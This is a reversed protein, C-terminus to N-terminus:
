AWEPIPGGNFGQSILTSAIGFVEAVFVVVFVILSLIFIIISAYLLRGQAVSMSHRRYLLIIISVLGLILSVWGLSSLFDISYSIGLIMVGMGIDRQSVPVTGIRDQEM